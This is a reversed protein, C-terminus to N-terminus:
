EAWSHHKLTHRSKHVGSCWAQMQDDRTPSSPAADARRGESLVARKGLHSVPSVVEGQLHPGVGGGGGAERGGGNMVM